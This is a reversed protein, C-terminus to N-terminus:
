KRKMELLAPHVMQQRENNFDVAMRPPRENSENINVSDDKDMYQSNPNLYKSQSFSDRSRSRNQDRSNSSLRRRQKDNVQKYFNSMNNESSQISYHKQM